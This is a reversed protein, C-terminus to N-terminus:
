APAWTAPSTSPQSAPVFDFTAFTHRLDYVRRLPDIGATKQAPRWQFPRFHHIDLYGGREGPFLAAFRPQGQDSRARRAGRKCRSLERARRPRRSTRARRPHVLPSCLRCARGPRTANSSHSGNPRGFGTAAAFLIMPGYRPRDSRRTDRTGDMVRVSAAGEAQDPQRRRGQRPQRRDNGVGHGPPAGPPAGPDGRLSLWALLNMRWAAIEQSTLEGIRRDGFMATAKSLLYRLKDITVPQVDHQALYTEVLESLTLRRTIRREQRLRELERELADRADQESAFGGRQIRRSDRGGTRYRYAWLREGNAGRRTLEITQGQQVM